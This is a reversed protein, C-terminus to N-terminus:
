GRDAGDYRTIRLAKALRAASERNALFVQLKQALVHIDDNSLTDPARRLIDTVSRIQAARREADVAM